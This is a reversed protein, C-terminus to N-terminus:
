WAVSITPILMILGYCIDLVANITVLKDRDAMVGPSLFDSLVLLGAGYYLFSLVLTGLLFCWYETRDARGSFNFTNRISHIFHKV